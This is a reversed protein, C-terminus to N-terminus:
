SESALLRKIEKNLVDLSITFREVCLKFNYEAADQSWKLKDAPDNMTFFNFGEYAPCYSEIIPIAGCMAAEFFRYTWIFDGNPCLVFQSNSLMKYYEADWAKLPFKRGRDSSWFIVDGLKVEHTTPPSQWQVAQLLKDKLRFLMCKQTPLKNKLEPFSHTLWSELAKRRQKTVLGAFSFRIDRRDPWLKRYYALAAHPFILPRRISGIETFPESHSLKLGPLIPVNGNDIAYDLHFIDRLHLLKNEHKAPIHVRYDSEMLCHALRLAQILELPLEIGFSGSFESTNNM